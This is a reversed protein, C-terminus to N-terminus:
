SSQALRMFLISDQDIPIVPITSAKVDKCAALAKGSIYCFDAGTDDSSFKIILILRKIWNDMHTLLNILIKLHNEVM